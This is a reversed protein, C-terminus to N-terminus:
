FPNMHLSSLHQIHNRLVDCAHEAATNQVSYVKFFISDIIIYVLFVYVLFDLLKNNFVM